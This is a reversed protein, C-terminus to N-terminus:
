YYHRYHRLSFNLIYSNQDDVELPITSLKIASDAMKGTNWAAALFSGIFNINSM